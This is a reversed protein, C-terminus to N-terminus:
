HKALDAVDERLTEGIDRGIEQAAGYFISAIEEESMDALMAANVASIMARENAHRASTTSLAIDKSSTYQWVLTGSAREIIRSLASIHARTGTSDSSLSYEQLITESRFPANPAYGYVPAVSLYAILAGEFGKAVQSALSDANAAHRLKRATETSIQGGSIGAIVDQVANHSGSAISSTAAGSTNTGSLMEVQKSRLNYQALKNTHGCSVIVISLCLAVLRYKIM